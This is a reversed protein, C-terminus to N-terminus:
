AKKARAAPSNPGCSLRAAELVPEGPKVNGTSTSCEVVGSGDGTWSIARGTVRESNGCTYLFDATVQRVFAFDVFTGAGSVSTATAPQPAPRHVDAFGYDHNDIEDTEGIHSGLSRLTAEADVRPGKEFTVATRPTHLKSLRNTLKGGGKGLKQKEAVGTLVDREDVNFWTYTGNKCATDVALEAKKPAGGSTAGGGTAGGGTAGGGATCAATGTLLAVVAYASLCTRRIKM